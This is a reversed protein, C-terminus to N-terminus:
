EGDQEATASYLTKISEQLVEYADYGYKRLIGSYANIDPKTMILRDKEMDWSIGALLEEAQMKQQEPTLQDFIRQNIIVIIDVGGFHKVLENAKAVKGIQKQVDDCLVKITVFRDLEAKTIIEDFINQVDDYPEEYKAM